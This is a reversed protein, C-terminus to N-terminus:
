DDLRAVGQERLQALGAEIAEVKAQALIHRQRQAALMRWTEAMKLIMLRQEESISTKALAECEDAHRLYDNVTKMLNIGLTAFDLRDEPHVRWGVFPGPWPRLKISGLFV